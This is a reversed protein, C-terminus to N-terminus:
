LPSDPPCFPPCPWHGDLLIADNFARAVAGSKLVKQTKVIDNGERDVAVLVMRYQGKADLGHYIRMGYAGPQALLESIWAGFFFGAKESAPSSRQHRKTLDVAEALSIRQNTPKTPIRRPQKDKYNAM